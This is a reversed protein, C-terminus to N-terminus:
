NTPAKEKSFSIGIKNKLKLIHKLLVIALIVGALDAFWDYINCDRGPVYYQHVEDFVGYFASWAISLKILKRKSSAYPAIAIIVFVTYVFFAIFHAIKDVFTLSLEPVISYEVNSLIFLVITLIIAPISWLIKKM